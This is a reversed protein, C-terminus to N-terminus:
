TTASNQSRQMAMDLTQFSIVINQKTTNYDIAATKQKKTALLVTSIKRTSTTFAWEVVLTKIQM